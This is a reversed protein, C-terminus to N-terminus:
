DNSKQPQAPGYVIANLLLRVTSTWIMRFGPEFNFLIVHGADIPEDILASSGRLLQETNGEWFFGSIKLKDGEFTLANAGTESPKFFVDGQIFLPLFESDYGITLFLDRIVKAKVISGPLEIPKHTVSDKKLSPFHDSKQRSEAPPKDNSTDARDESGVLRSPSLKTDPDAAFESAGGLCILVGGHSVWDRLDGLQSEAIAKKYHAAQGDPLILVNIQNLVEPTLKELSVPVIELGSKQDLLFRMLGYSTQEVPGDALIAAKPPKLSFNAESAIGRRSNDSLLTHISQVPVGYKQSLNTLVEPLDSPNREEWLIFSGRPMDKEAARFPENSAELRNGQRLLQIAM